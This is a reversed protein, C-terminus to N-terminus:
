SPPRDVIVGSAKLEAIETSSKALVESLTSDNHEGLRPSPLWEDYGREGNFVFPSGDYQQTGTDPHSLRAFYGREGLHENGLYEPCTLVAGAPVGVQMLEDMLGFKSRERTWAGIVEDLERRHELRSSGTAFRPDADWGRGAVRCLGAWEDEDRAALAIWDDDGACRYIGHPAHRAHGNAVYEPTKGSLQYEIFYEGLLAIGAEHHSGDIRAGTGTRERRELATLVASAAALGAIADPTATGTGNSTQSMPTVGGPASLSGSSSM